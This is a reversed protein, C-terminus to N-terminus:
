PERRQADGGLFKAFAHIIMDQQIEAGKVTSLTKM